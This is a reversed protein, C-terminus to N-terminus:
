LPSLSKSAKLEINTKKIINMEDSPKDENDNNIRLFFVLSIPMRFILPAETVSISFNSKPNKPLHIDNATMMETGTLVNSIKLHNSLKAYLVLRFGTQKTM